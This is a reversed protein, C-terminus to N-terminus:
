GELLEMDRLKDLLATLDEGATEEDVEFENLIAQLLEEYTCENQLMQWVLASVANITILGNYRNSLEGTPILLTEDAIERIVMGEVAKM